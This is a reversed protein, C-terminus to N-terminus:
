DHFRFPSVSSYAARVKQRLYDPIHPVEALGLNVHPADRDDPSADPLLILAVTASWAEHDDPKPMIAFGEAGAPLISYLSLSAGFRPFNTNVLDRYGIRSDRM